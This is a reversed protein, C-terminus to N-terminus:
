NSRVSRKRRSVWFMAGAGALLMASSPEPIASVVSGSVSFDIGPAASPDNLYWTGTAGSAGWVVLRFTVTESVGQLSSIGSLDIASQANGASTTTGGWTIENGLNVFSGTGIQYQWQGTTAGTGSRRVNYADISDFSLEYGGSASMSFTIFDGGALANAFSTENLGNGGWANTAASGTTGVGAGRTLGVATANTITTDPTLPSAGYNNTGGTLNDFDWGVLVAGQAGAALVALTAMIFFTKKMKYDQTDKNKQNQGCRSCGLRSTSQKRLKHCGDKVPSM